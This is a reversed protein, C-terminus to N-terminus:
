FECGLLKREEWEARGDGLQPVGMESSKLM